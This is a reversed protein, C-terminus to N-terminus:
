RGTELALYIRTFDAGKRRKASAYLKQYKETENNKRADRLLFIFADTLDDRCNKLCQEAVRRADDTRGHEEYYAILEGYEKGSKWLNQERWAAYKDGKGYQLYLYAAKRRNDSSNSKELIEAYELYEEPKTCLRESLASFAEYFDLSSYYGHAAMDALVQKRLKWDEQGLGDRDLLSRCLKVIEETQWKDNSSRRYAVQDALEGVQEWIDALGGETQQLPSPQMCRYRINSALERKRRLTEQAMHMERSYDQGSFRRDFEARGEAIEKELLTSMESFIGEPFGKGLLAEPNIGECMEHELIEKLRRATHRIDGAAARGAGACGAEAILWDLGIDKRKMSLMGEKAADVISFVDEEPGDESDEAEVIQFELRCVRDLVGAATEHEGLRLLEHCGMFVRDLFLMAGDPDNHWIKWDDMYRGDDDFEYYHTEYELVIEGDEVKRCFEEIEEEEPMYRLKKRGSLTKLFDEQEEQMLLRAQTLIWEDKQAETMEKLREEVRKFFVENEKLLQGNEKGSM